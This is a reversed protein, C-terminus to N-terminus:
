WSELEIEYRKIGKLNSDASEFDFHFGPKKIETKLIQNRLPLLLRTNYSYHNTEDIRIPNRLTFITACANRGAIASLFTQGM